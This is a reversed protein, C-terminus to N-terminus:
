HVTTLPPPHPAPLRPVALQAARRGALVGACLQGGETPRRVRGGARRGWLRRVRFMLATLRRSKWFLSTGNPSGKVAGQLQPPLAAAPAGGAAAAFALPYVPVAPTWAPTGQYLYNVIRLPGPQGARIRTM